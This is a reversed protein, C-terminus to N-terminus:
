PIVHGMEHVYISLVIGLAFALGRRGICALRCCCRSCHRGRPLGILIAKLKWGLLWARRPRRWSGDTPVPGDKAITRRGLKTPSETWPRWDQRLNDSAAEIRAAFTGTGRAVKGACLSTVESPRGQCVGCPQVARRCSGTARLGPWALM